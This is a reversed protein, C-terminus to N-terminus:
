KIHIGTEEYRDCRMDYGNAFFDAFLLSLTCHFRRFFLLTPIESLTFVVRLLFQFFTLVDCSSVVIIPMVNQAVTSLFLVLLLPFPVSRQRCWSDLLTASM